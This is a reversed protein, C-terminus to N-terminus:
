TGLRKKGAKFPVVKSAPKRNDFIGSLKDPQIGLSKIYRTTTNPNKHRLQAQVSPIGHGFEHPMGGNFHATAVAM